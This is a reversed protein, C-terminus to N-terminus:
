LRGVSLDKGMNQRFMARRGEQEALACKKDVTM